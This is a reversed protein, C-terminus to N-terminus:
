LNRNKRNLYDIQEATLRITTPGSMGASLEYKHYVLAIGGNGLLYYDESVRSPTNESDWGTVKDGVNNLYVGNSDESYVEDSSYLFKLDQLTIKVFNSLPLKKGSNKDYVIGYVIYYDQAALMSKIPVRFDTITLSIYNSDEFKVKYSFNGQYFKGASYDNRFAAIYKYIDQNIKNQAAQNKTYVIPYEMEYNIQKDIHKEVSAFVTSIQLVLFATLILFKKM